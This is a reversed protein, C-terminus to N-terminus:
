QWSTYGEAMSLQAKQEDYSRKLRDYDAGVEYPFHLKCYTCVATKCIADLESPLSVGAIQLDSQAAAILQNLQSDYTNTKIRLAM